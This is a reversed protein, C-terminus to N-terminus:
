LGALKRVADDLHAVQTRYEAVVAEAEAPFVGNENAYRALQNVNNAVTGMLRRIEFLTAAVQRWETDTRSQPNLASEILLRPVTVQQVAARAELQLREEANATVEWRKTRKDEQPANARRKRGFLRRENTESMFAEGEGKAWRLSGSVEPVM